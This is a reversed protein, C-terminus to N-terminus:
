FSVDQARRELWRDFISAHIRVGRYAAHAHHTLRFAFGFFRTSRVVDDSSGLHKAGSLM